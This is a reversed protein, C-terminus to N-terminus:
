EGIIIKDDMVKMEAGQIQKWGIIGAIRIGTERQISDAVNQLDSTLFQVLPVGVIDVALKKTHWVGVQGGVGTISGAYPLGLDFDYLRKANVDILGVSAGTDVLMYAPKGNISVSIIPRKPTVFPAIM